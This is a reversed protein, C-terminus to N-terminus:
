TTAPLYNLLSVSNLKATVQLSAQLATQDMNLNTVAQGMGVNQIDSVFGQYLNSLSQQQTVADQLTTYVDGNQGTIDNVTTTAASSTAMEGSLFNSQAGTLTTQFNGQSSGNFNVLDALTQMLGTAVSSATVGINVSEGDGVTVSKTQSGNDFISNINANTIGTLDSLQSVNVPPTNDNDGGYIYNGNADTSNLISVASDFVSQATAMLGTADNKGVADSIAQQLQQSLSGLQTLQTDQLNVQNVANQTANQYATAKNAQNRAAEMADVQNGYGAYDTAVTGTTVQQQATNLNSEAQAISSMMTQMQSATSVRDISM